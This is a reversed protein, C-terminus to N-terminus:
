GAVVVRGSPNACTEGWLKAFAERNAAEAVFVTWRSQYIFATPTSRGGIGPKGSITGCVVMPPVRDEVQPPQVVVLSDFTASSSDRLLSAMVGQAAVRLETAHALEAEAASDAQAAVIALSDSANPTESASCGSMVVVGWLGVGVGVRFRYVSRRVRTMSVEQVRDARKEPDAWAMLIVM